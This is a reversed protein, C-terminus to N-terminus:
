LGYRLWGNSRLPIGGAKQPMTSLGDHNSVRSASVYRAVAKVQESGLNTWFLRRTMQEKMVRVRVNDVSIMPHISPLEVRVGKLMKLCTGVHHPPPGFCGLTHPLRKGLTM